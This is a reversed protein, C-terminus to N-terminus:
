TEIAIFFTCIANQEIKKGGSLDVTVKTLCIVFGGVVWCWGVLLKEVLGGVM